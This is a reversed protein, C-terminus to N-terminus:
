LEDNQAQLSEWCKETRGPAVLVNHSVPPSGGREPPPAIGVNASRPSLLFDASVPVKSEMGDMWCKDHLSKMNQVIKKRVAERQKEWESDLSSYVDAAKKTLAVKDLFNYGEWYHYKADEITLEPSNKRALTM